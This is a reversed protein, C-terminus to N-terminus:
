ELGHHGREDSAFAAEAAAIKRAASATNDSTVRAIESGDIPTFVARDDGQRCDPQLDLAAFISDLDM